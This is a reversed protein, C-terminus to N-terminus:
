EKGRVDREEEGTRLEERKKQKCSVVEEREGLEMEM